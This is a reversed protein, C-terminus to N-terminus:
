NWNFDANKVHVISGDALQIFGYSIFGVCGFQDMEQTIKRPTEFKNIQRPAKM